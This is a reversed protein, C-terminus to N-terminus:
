IIMIQINMIICVFLLHRHIDRIFKFVANILHGGKAKCKFFTVNDYYLISNEGDLHQDDQM